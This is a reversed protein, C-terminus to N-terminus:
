EHRQWHDARRLRRQFFGLAHNVVHVLRQSEAHFSLFSTRILAEYWSVGRDTMEADGRLVLVLLTKLFHSIGGASKNENEKQKLIYCFARSTETHVTFLPRFEKQVQGRECIYTAYLLTYYGRTSTEQAIMSSSLDISGRRRRERGHERGNKAEGHVEGSPKREHLDSIWRRPEEHDESQFCSILRCM